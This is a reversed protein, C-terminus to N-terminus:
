IDHGAFNSISINQFTAFYFIDASYFNKHNVITQGVIATANEMLYSRFDMFLMDSM